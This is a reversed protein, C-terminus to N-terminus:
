GQRLLHACQHEQLLQYLSLLCRYGFGEQDLLEGTTHRLLAELDEYGSQQMFVILEPIVSLQEPSQQLIHAQTEIM